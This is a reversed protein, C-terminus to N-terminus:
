PSLLCQTQGFDPLCHLVPFGPMSYDMPDCLTLCLKAVSCSSELKRALFINSNQM